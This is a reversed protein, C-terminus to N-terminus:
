VRVQLLHLAKRMDGHALRLLAKKGDETIRVSRGKKIGCTDISAALCYYREEKIIHEIRGKMHEEALPSFRFKTCRSQIAPIIKNVYNCILCFRVNKTYKEIVLRWWCCGLACSTWHSMAPHLHPISSLILRDRVEDYRQKPPMPWPM